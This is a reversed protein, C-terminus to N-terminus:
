KGERTGGRRRDVDDRRQATNCKRRMLGLYAQQMRKMKRCRKTGDGGRKLWFELMSGADGNCSLRRPGCSEWVRSSYFIMEVKAVGEVV